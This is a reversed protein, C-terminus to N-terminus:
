RRCLSRLSCPQGHCAKDAAVVGGFNGMNTGGVAAADSNLLERWKGPCSSGDRYQKRPVPTLNAMVVM